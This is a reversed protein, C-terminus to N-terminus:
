QTAVTSGGVQVNYDTADKPVPSVVVVFPITGGPKLGLNALSDGFQNNMTEEIKVLPLSALQENSLSNGCFASKTVLTVGGAGLLSVKIQISARPKKFNNVAEGRVVFLEGATSNVTYAATVSKLAISGDDAGKDGYWEVLFGLGVKSFAKPGGIFYVGSGALAIILVIAGLIVILPFLSGSKKRSTLSLPPLEEEPYEQPAEAPASEMAAKAQQSAAPKSKATLAPDEVEGFSFKEFNVNEAEEAAASSAPSQQGSGSNFSLIFDDAASSESDRASIGPSATFEEAPSGTFSDADARAAASQGSISIDGFDMTFEDVQMSDAAASSGVSPTSEAKYNMNGFNFDNDDAPTATADAVANPSALSADFASLDFASASKDADTATSSGQWDFENASDTQASATEKNVSPSEVAFSFDTSNQAFSDESNGPRDFSCGTTETGAGADPSSEPQTSLENEAPPATVPQPFLVKVAASEEKQVVFVEKCKACRVKVPGNALKSDDMRFKASCHDCQIIM